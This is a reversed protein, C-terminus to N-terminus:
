ITEDSTQSVVQLEIKLKNLYLFQDMYKFYIVSDMVLAFNIMSINTLFRVGRKM